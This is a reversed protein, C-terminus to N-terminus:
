GCPRLRSFLGFPGAASSSLTSVPPTFHAYIETRLPPPHRIMLPNSGASRQLGANNPYPLAELNM